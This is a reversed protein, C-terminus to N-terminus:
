VLRNGCRHWYSSHQPCQDAKDFVLRTHMILDQGWRGTSHRATIGTFTHGSTPAQSNGPRLIPLPWVARPANNRKNPGPIPSSPSRPNSLLLISYSPQLSATSSPTTLRTHRRSSSPCAQAYYADPGGCHVGLGWATRLQTGGVLNSAM